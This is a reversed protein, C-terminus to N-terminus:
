WYRNQFQMQPCSPLFRMKKDFKPWFHWKEESIKPKSPCAGGGSGGNAVM